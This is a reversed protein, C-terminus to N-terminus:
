AILPFAVQQLLQLLSRLIPLSGVLFEGLNSQPSNKLKKFLPIIYVIFIFM